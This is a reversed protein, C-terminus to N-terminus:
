SFPEFVRQLETITSDNCMIMDIAHYDSNKEYRRISSYKDLIHTQTNVEPKKNSSVHFHLGFLHNFLNYQKRHNRHNHSEIQLFHRQM